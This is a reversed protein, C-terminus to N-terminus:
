QSGRARSELSRAQQLPGPHPWITIRRLEMLNRAGKFNVGHKVTLGVSLGTEQAIKVVQDNCNGNPYAISRPMSGTLQKLFLQAGEIQERIGEPAYNVLIAHDRTHNGLSVQRSQAFQALESATFPRDVDSVPKLADAGFLEVLQAEIDAARLRKMARALRGIASTNWGHRRGHRYLADWWFSKQEEVHGTSIFFTAPVDFCRLVEIASVNNYYGDDFTIVATPGPQPTSVAEELRRFAIGYTLFREVLERFFAVTIGQQPDCAAGLLERRNQFLGHFLLVVTGGGQERGASPASWLRWMDRYWRLYNRAATIM